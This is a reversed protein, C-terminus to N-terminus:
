LIRAKRDIAISKRVLPFNEQAMTKHHIRKSSPFWYGHRRSGRKAVILAGLSQLHLQSPFLRHHLLHM